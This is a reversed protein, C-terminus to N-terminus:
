AAHTLFVSAVLLGKDKELLMLKGQHNSPNNQARGQKETAPFRTETGQIAVGPEGMRMLWAFDNLKGWKM